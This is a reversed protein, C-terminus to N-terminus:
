RRSEWISLLITINDYILSDQEYPRPTRLM